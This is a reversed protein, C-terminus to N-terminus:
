KLWSQCIHTATHGGDCDLCLVTRSVEGLDRADRQLWDKGGGRAEVFVSRNESGM